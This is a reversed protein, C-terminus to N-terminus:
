RSTREANRRRAHDLRRHTATLQASLLKEQGILTRFMELFREEARMAGWPRIAGTLKPAPKGPAVLHQAALPGFLAIAEADCMRNDMDRVCAWDAAKVANPAPLGAAAYIAADWGAKAREIARALMRRGRLEGPLMAELERAIFVAAPRPLDGTLYEHGDHLLFLAARYADGTENLIAEAGMVSHQAVSYAAGAPRGNFRAIRSLGGAVEYFDIEAPDPVALDMLSGDTRYSHIPKM